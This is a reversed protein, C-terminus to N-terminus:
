RIELSHDKRSEDFGCVNWFYSEIIAFFDSKKDAEKRKEKLTKRMGELLLDM